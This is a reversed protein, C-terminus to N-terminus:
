HVETPVLYCRTVARTAKTTDPQSQKLRRMIGGEVERFPWKGEPGGVGYEELKVGPSAPNRRGHTIGFKRM